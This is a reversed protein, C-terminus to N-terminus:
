EHRLAVIPDVKAARVAPYLGFLVGVAGSIGVALAVSWPTVRTPMEALTEILWPVAIGLGIGIQRVNSACAVRKAILKVQGLSPLMIGLLVAIVAMSVLVDILSFGRGISKAMPTPNSGDRHAHACDRM